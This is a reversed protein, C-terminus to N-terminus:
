HPPILHNSEDQWPNRRCRKAQRRTNHLNSPFRTNLEPTSSGFLLRNKTIHLLYLVWQWPRLHPFFSLMPNVWKLAGSFKTLSRKEFFFLTKQPFGESGKESWTEWPGEESPHLACHWSEAYRGPISGRGLGRWLALVPSFSSPLLLRLTGASGLQSKKTWKIGKESGKSSKEFRVFTFYGFNQSASFGMSCACSALFVRRILLVNSIVHYLKCIVQM